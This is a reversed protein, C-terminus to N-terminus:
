AAALAPDQARTVVGSTQNQKDAFAIVALDVPGFRKSSKRYGKPEETVTAGHKEAFDFLADFRQAQTGQTTHLYVRINIDTPTPLSPDSEIRDAFDRLAAIALARREADNPNSM